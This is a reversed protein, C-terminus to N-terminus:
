VTTALVKVYNLSFIALIKAKARVAKQRHGKKARPSGNLPWSGALSGNADLWNFDNGALQWPGDMGSILPQFVPRLDRM